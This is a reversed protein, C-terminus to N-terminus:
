APNCMRYIYLSIAASEGLACPPKNFLRGASARQKPDVHHSTGELMWTWDLGENHHGGIVVVMSRLLTTTYLRTLRM